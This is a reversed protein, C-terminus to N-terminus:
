KAESKAQDYEEKTIEELFIYYEHNELHNVDNRIYIIVGDSGVFKQYQNGGEETWADGLLCGKILGNLRASEKLRSQAYLSPNTVCGFRDTGPYTKTSDFNRPSEPVSHEM